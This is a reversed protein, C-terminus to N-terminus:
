QLREDGRAKFFSTAFQEVMNRLGKHIAASVEDKPGYGLIARNWLSSPVNSRVYSGANCDVHYAVIYEEGVTWVECALFGLQSLRETGDPSPGASGELAVGPFNRLFTLRTVDTLEGSKLGIKEATGQTQVEVSVFKKIQRLEAFPSPASTVEQASVVSIMAGGLALAHASVRSLKRLHHWM